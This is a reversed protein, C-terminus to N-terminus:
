LVIISADTMNLHQGKLYHPEYEVPVIGESSEADFV